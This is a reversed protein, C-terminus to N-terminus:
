NKSHTCKIELWEAPWFEQMGKFIEIKQDNEFAARIGTDDKFDFKKIFEIEFDNARLAELIPLLRLTNYCYSENMRQIVTDIKDQFVADESEKKFFDKIYIFGNSRIVKAVENIVQIPNEAHGLSELFIAGDFEAKPYISAIQHFDGKMVNVKAQLKKKAIKEYAMQAQVGSVTLGEIKVNCKSAFYIAPGGVGCGADLIKQGKKFGISNKLYALLKSESSPRFAQIVEGYIKLYTGTTSDYYQEVDKPTSM